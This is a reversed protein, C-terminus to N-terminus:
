QRLCFFDFGGGGQWDVLASVGGQEGDVVQRLRAAAVTAAHEGAEIGIFRRNTKLAVAGTTGSGFYPDLVLDGPNSAVQIIRAM